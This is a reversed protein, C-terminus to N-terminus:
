LKAKWSNFVDPHALTFNPFALVMGGDVLLIHGTVYEAAILYLVGEAIEKTTGLRQLPIYSSPDNAGKPTLRSLGETGATAGPAIANVRIKQPGLELALSKTLSDIAAKAAAAHSQMHVCPMQLTSSINIVVGGTKKMSSNYVEKTMSFTGITDIELVTRFGKTSLKSFPALFNGAANNILIDIQPFIKLISSVTSSIQDINRIDCQFYHCTNKPFTSAAEELKKLNRGLIAIVSGHAVLYKGIELGIGSGGGTILAYKGVLLDKRYISEM